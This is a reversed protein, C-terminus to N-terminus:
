RKGGLVESNNVVQLLEDTSISFANVLGILARLGPRKLDMEIQWIMGPSLGSRRALEAQSWGREERLERVRSGLSKM